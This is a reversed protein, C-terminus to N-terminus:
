KRTEVALGFYTRYRKDAVEHCNNAMIVLVREITKTKPLNALFKMAVELGISTLLSGSSLKGLSPDSAVSNTKVGFVQIRVAESNSTTKSFSGTAPDTLTYYVFNKDPKELVFSPQVGARLYNEVEFAYYEFKM